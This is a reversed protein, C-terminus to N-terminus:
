SARRNSVLRSVRFAEACKSCSTRASPDPSPLRNAGALAHGKTCLRTGNVDADLHAWLRRQRIRRIVSESVGYRRSLARAVGYYAPEALIALVDAEVLKAAGQQEGQARRARGKVICDVSNDVQTGVFLHAPNCCPPNDCAHCAVEGRVLPRGLTLALAVRSATAFVGKRVTFQGYGAPKRYALWPWCEDDGRRDVKSWFRDRFSADVQTLDLAQAFPRRM